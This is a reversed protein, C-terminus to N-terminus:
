ICRLWTSECTSKIPLFNKSKEYLKYQLFGILMFKSIRQLTSRTLYDSSEYNKGSTQQTSISTWFIFASCQADWCNFYKSYKRKNHFCFFTTPCPHMAKLMEQQQLMPLFEEHYLRRVMPFIFFHPRVEMSSSLAKHQTEFTWWCICTKTYCCVKCPILDKVPLNLEQKEENSM